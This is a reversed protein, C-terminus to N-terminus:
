VPGVLVAFLVSEQVQCCEQEDNEGLLLFDQGVGSNKPAQNEQVKNHVEVLEDNLDPLESIIVKEILRRSV